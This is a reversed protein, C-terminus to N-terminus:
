GTTRTMPIWEYVAQAAGHVCDQTVKWVLRERQWKVGFFKEGWKEVWGDEGEHIDRCMFLIMMGIIILVLLGENIIWRAVISFTKKNGFCFWWGPLIVAGQRSFKVDLGGNGGGAEVLYDACGVGGLDGM